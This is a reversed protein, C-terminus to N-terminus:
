SRSIALQKAYSKCALMEPLSLVDDMAIPGVGRLQQAIATGVEIVRALLQRRNWGILLTLDFVLEVLRALFLALGLVLDALLALV